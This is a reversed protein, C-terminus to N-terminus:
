RLQCHTTNFNNKVNKGELIADAQSLYMHGQPLCAYAEANEALDLHCHQKWKTQLLKPDGEQTVENKGWM